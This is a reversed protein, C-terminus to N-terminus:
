YVYKISPHYPRGHQHCRVRGHRKMGRVKYKHFHCWRGGRRDHRYRKHFRLLPRNYGDLYPDNDFPDYGPGRDGIYIGVGQAAAENSQVGLMAGTFALVSAALVLKTRGLQVTM